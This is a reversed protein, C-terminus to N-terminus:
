KFVDWNIPSLAIIKNTEVRNIIHVMFKTVDIKDNILKDKKFRYMEKIENDGAMVTAREIGQTVSVDDFEYIELGYRKQDILSGYKNDHLFLVAPTGLVTAESAMTGSEGVFLHAFALASHMEDPRISIQYDKLESPLEAESSIFVKMNKALANVLKMKNDLSMGVHGLDHVAAWAVFRVIAYKEGKGVGLSDLVSEDPTFVNPHLYALEHYGPYQIEKKGLSPHPYDGTLVVDTFPMRFRAQGMCFTDELTIYPKRVLFSSHAAIMSAHSVFIDPKFSLATNFMQMENKALGYLKGQITKYHKGFNEYVFGYTKLLYVVHERDRCTFLVRHGNEQLKWALNKFLHVHAPHGIDILVRM